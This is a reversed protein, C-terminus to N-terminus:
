SPLKGIENLSREYIKQASKLYRSSPFNDIIYEYYTITEDYRERKRRDTSQEAYKFQADLKLYAAEENLDSDPFDRQFNGFAVVAAQYSGIKYYLRANEFAKKELRIQLKKLISTCEEFFSSNPYANLFSQTTSIAELTSSQDLNFPPANEFLSRVQMYRAEEAFKSARFTQYFRQFYYAARDLQNQHYNCYAFYFQAKESERTGIILPIIEELM